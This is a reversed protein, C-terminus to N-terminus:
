NRFSIRSRGWKKKSQFTGSKLFHIVQKCVIKRQPLLGHFGRVVATDKEIGLKTEEPTVLGDNDGEIFPNYGINPGLSGVIIGVESNYPIPLNNAYSCSDTKMLTVNPGGIKKLIEISSGFDAMESGHNPPAIMVMRYIVPFNKDKQSYYLMSRVVLAGMSHTVFSITDFDSEKVDLYLERGLTDLNEYM